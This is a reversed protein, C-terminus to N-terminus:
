LRRLIVMRCSMQNVGDNAEINRVILPILGQGLTHHTYDASRWSVCWSLLAFSTLFIVWRPLM